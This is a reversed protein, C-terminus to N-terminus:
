ILPQVNKGQSSLITRKWRRYIPASKMNPALPFDLAFNVFFDAKRGQKEDNEAKEKEAAGEAVVGVVTEGVVVKMVVLCEVVERPPQVV